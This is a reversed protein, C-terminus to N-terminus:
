LIRKSELINYAAVVSLTLFAVGAVPLSYQSVEISVIHSWLGDAINKGAYLVCGRLHELTVDSLVSLLWVVGLCACVATWIRNLHVSPSPLRRMVRGTFGNDAIEIKNEEFFSRVLLEDGDTLLEKNEM